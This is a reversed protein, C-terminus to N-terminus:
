FSFLALSLFSNYRSLPRIHELLAVFVVRVKPVSSLFEPRDLADFITKLVIM